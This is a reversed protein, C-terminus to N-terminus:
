DCPRVSGSGCTRLNRQRQIPPCQEATSYLLSLTNKPAGPSLHSFGGSWLLHLLLDWFFSPNPRSCQDCLTRYAYPARAVESHSAIFNFCEVGCEILTQREPDKAPALLFAVTTPQRAACPTTLITAALNLPPISVAPLGLLVTVTFPSAPASPGTLFCSRSVLIQDPPRGLLSNFAWTRAQKAGTKDSVLCQM